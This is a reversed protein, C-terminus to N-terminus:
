VPTGNGVIGSGEDQVTVGAAIAEAGRDLLLLRFVGDAGDNEVAVGGEVVFTGPGREVKFSPANNPGNFAEATVEQGGIDGDVGVVFREVVHWPQRVCRGREASTIIGRRSSRSTPIRCFARGVAVGVEEGAKGVM